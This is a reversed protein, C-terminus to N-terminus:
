TPPPPTLVPNNIEGWLLFLQTILVRKARSELTFNLECIQRLNPHNRTLHIPPTQLVETWLLLSLIKSKCFRSYIGMLKWLSIEFTNNKISHEEYLITMTIDHCKADYITLGNGVLTGLTNEPPIFNSGSELFSNFCRQSLVKTSKVSLLLYVFHQCYSKTTLPWVNKQSLSNM